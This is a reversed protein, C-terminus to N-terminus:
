AGGRFVNSFLACDIFLHKGSKGRRYSLHLICLIAICRTAVVVSKCYHYCSSSCCAKCRCWCCCCGQLLGIGLVGGPKRNVIVGLCVIPPLICLRLHMQVVIIIHTGNKPSAEQRAQIHVQPKRIHAKYFLYQKEQQQLKTSRLGDHIQAHMLMTTMMMVLWVRGGECM